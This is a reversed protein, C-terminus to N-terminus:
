YSHLSQIKSRLDKINIETGIGSAVLLNIAEQYLDCSFMRDDMRECFDAMRIYGNILDRPKNFTQICELYDRFVELSKKYNEATNEWYKIQQQLSQLKNLHALYYLQARMM